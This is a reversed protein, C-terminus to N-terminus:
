FFNNWSKNSPKEDVLEFYKADWVYSYGEKLIILHQPKKLNDLETEEKVYFLDIGYVDSMVEFVGTVDDLVSNLGNPACSRTDGEHTYLWEPKIRVKKGRWSQITEKSEM